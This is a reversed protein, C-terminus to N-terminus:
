RQIPLTKNCFELTGLGLYRKWLFLFILCLPLNLAFQKNEFSCFDAPESQNTLLQM